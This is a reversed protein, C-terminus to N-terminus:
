SITKKLYFNEISSKQTWKLLFRMEHADKFPTKVIIMEFDTLTIKTHITDFAM